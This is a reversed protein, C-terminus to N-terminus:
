RDARLAALLPARVLIRVAMLSSVAGVALVLGLIAALTHWPVSAGPGLLHPLVAAMAAILGIALGSVLLLLNELVVLWALSARRFGAARLLALEGRREVVNRVQVAALGITGLLLGLGGLSQFTSLYTNQVALFGALRDASREVQFGYDGLSRELAQQVEVTKGAPADILFFRYGSVNPDYQLLGEESVILNGQFISDTLLGAVEMSQSWGRADTLSFQEGRGKWLHLAYNATNKDMVVPM